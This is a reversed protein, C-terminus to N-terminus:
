SVYCLWVFFICTGEEGAYRQMLTFPRFMKLPSWPPHTSSTSSSPSCVNYPFSVTLLMPNNVLGATMKNNRQNVL